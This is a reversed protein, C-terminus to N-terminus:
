DLARQLAARTQELNALAEAQAEAAAQNASSSTPHHSQPDYQSFLVTSVPVQPHIHEYIRKSNNQGTRRCQPVAITSPAMHFAEAAVIPSIVDVHPALSVFVCISCIMRRFLSIAQSRSPIAAHRRSNVSLSRRPVLRSKEVMSSGDVGGGLHPRPSADDRHRPRRRRYRATTAKSRRRSIM